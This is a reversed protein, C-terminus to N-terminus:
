SLGVLRWSRGLVAGLRGWSGGLAGWSGGLPPRSGAETAVQAPKAPWFRGPPRWSAMKAEGPARKWLNRATQGAKRFALPLALALALRLVCSAVRLRLRLEFGLNNYNRFGRDRFGQTAAPPRSAILSALIPTRSFFVHVRSLRRWPTKQPRPCQM